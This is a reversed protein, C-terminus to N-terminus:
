LNLQIKIIKQLFFDIICLYGRFNKFNSTPAVYAWIADEFINLGYFGCFSLTEKLESRGKAHTVHSIV